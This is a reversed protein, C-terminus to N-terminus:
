IHMLKYGYKWYIKNKHTGSTMSKKIKEYKRGFDLSKICVTKIYEFHSNKYQMNLACCGTYLNIFFFIIITLECLDKLLFNSASHYIYM